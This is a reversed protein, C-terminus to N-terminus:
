SYSEEVALWNVYVEDIDDTEQTINCQQICAMAQSIVRDRWEARTLNMNDDPLFAAVELAVGALVYPDIQKLEILQRDLLEPDISLGHSNLTVQTDYLIGM